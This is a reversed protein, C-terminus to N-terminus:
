EEVLESYIIEDVKIERLSQTIHETNKGSLLYQTEDLSNSDELTTMFFNNRRKLTFVLKQIAKLRKKLNKKLEKCGV